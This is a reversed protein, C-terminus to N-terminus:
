DVGQRNIVCNRATSGEVGLGSSELICGAERGVRRGVLRVRCVACFPLVTISLFNCIYVTFYLSTRYIVNFYLTTSLFVTFCLSTCHLVTFNTHRRQWSHIDPVADSSSGLICTVRMCVEMYHLPAM